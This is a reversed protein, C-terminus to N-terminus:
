SWSGLYGDSFTEQSLTLGTRRLLPSRRPAGRAENIARGVLSQSRRAHGCAFVGPVSTACAPALLNGARGEAVEIHQLLADREPRASAAIVQGCWGERM